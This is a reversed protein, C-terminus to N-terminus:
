VAFEFFGIRQRIEQRLYQCIRAVISVILFFLSVGIPCLFVFCIQVQPSISFLDLCLLCRSHKHANAGKHSMCIDRGM